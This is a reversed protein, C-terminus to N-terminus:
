DFRDSQHPTVSGEKSPHSASCRRCPQESGEGCHPAFFLRKVLFVSAGAVITITILTDWM